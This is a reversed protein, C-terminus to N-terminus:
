TPPSGFPRHRRTTIIPSIILLISGGLEPRARRVQLSRCRGEQSVSYSHLYAVVLYKPGCGAMACSINSIISKTWKMHRIPDLGTPRTMSDQSKCGGFASHLLSNPCPALAEAITRTGHYSRAIRIDDRWRTSTGRADSVRIFFFSSLLLGIKNDLSTTSCFDVRVSTTASPSDVARLM